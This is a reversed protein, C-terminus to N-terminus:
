DRDEVVEYNTFVRQSNTITEITIVKKGNITRELFEGKEAEPHVGEGKHLRYTKEVVVTKAADDFRGELYHMWNIGYSEYRRKEM